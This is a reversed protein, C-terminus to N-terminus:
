ERLTASNRIEVPNLDLQLGVSSFAWTRPDGLVPRTERYKRFEEMRQVGFALDAEYQNHARCRLSINSLTHNRCKAWPVEHHFELVERTGCDVGDRSVFTCRGGDRGWVARRIAAPIHRSPKKTPAAKPSASSDPVSTRPSACSGIKKKRVQDLLAGVAQALIAAVDGDPISHRLLSRLEQLQDYVGQDAVFRINYRRSGLPNVRARKPPPVVPFEPIAVRETTASERSVANVQVPLAAAQGMTPSEPSAVAVHVPLAAEGAGKVASALAISAVSVRRVSTTVDASPKQDAIRQRIEQSTADRAMSVWRTASGPELHPAILSAGTLHLDGNELATLLEPFKRAARAVCIRKYAVGEAFHLVRVCYDFMSPCAKELYLSRADLEGLHAIFETELAHERRVLQQLSLLLQDSALANLPVNSNSM